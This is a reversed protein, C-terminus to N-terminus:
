KLAEYEALVEKSSLTGSWIKLEDVASPWNEQMIELANLQEGSQLKIYERSIKEEGDLYFKLISRYSDYTLALHHWNNDGPILPNGYGALYDGQSNFVFSPNYSTPTLSMLTKENNKLSLHLRGENPNSTNRWWFSLSFDTVPVSTFNTKITDGVRIASDNKGEMDWNSLSLNIDSSSLLDKAILGTNENFSWYHKLEAKQQPEPWSYPNFPQNLLYINKLESQPLSRSWIALEEIAVLENQASSLEFSDFNPIIGNYKYSYVENGDLYLSWYGSSRNIVLSFQHWVNGGPWTLSDIRGVQGPLGYLASFYPGIELHVQPSDPTKNLLKLIISFNNELNRYYFNITLQNPDLPNNFVGKTSSALVSLANACGWRGVTWKSSKNLDVPDEENTQLENAALDGYCEDFHWLHRLGESDLGVPNVFLAPDTEAENNNTNGEEATIVGLDYPVLIFDVSNDNSDYLRPWLEELGGSAMSEITSTASVKRELAYGKPMAPAPSGEFYKATGYGLKDVIDPDSDSSISATGLYLTYADETWSFTDKTAIADAQAKIEESATSRAVLYYSHAGIVTGGPYSGDAEDGFRMILTPDSGTKAKELRYGAAALDFDFDSANIIELWDDDGNSYVKAILALPKEETISTSTSVTNIPNNNVVASTTAIPILPKASTRPVTKLVSTPTVVNSTAVVKSTTAKVTSVTLATNTLTSIKATTSQKPTNLSVSVTKSTNLGGNVALSSTAKEVSIKIGTNSTNSKEITSTSKSSALKVTSLKTSSAKVSASKTSTSVDMSFGYDTNEEALVAGSSPFVREKIALLVESTKSAIKKITSVPNNILSWKLVLGLIPSSGRVETESFSSSLNIDVPVDVLTEQLYQTYPLFFYRDGAHELGVDYGILEPAPLLMDTKREIKSFELDSSFCDGNKNYVSQNDFGDNTINVAYNEPEYVLSGLNQPNSINASEYVKETLGVCTWEGNLPGKQYKFDFDYALNKSTLSKAISVAKAIQNPTANKPIRAGILKEGLSENIFNNAPVKIAGGPQMEVIYDIGNEKGVYIAAHGSYIHSLKGKESVILDNANYGYLKNDGSTRYLITGLPMALVYNWPFLLSATLILLFFLFKSKM